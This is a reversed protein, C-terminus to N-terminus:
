AAEQQASLAEATSLILEVASCTRELLESCASLLDRSHKRCYGEIYTHAGGRDSEVTHGLCELLIAGGLEAVVENDLRQGGAHTITGQRDDAAHCLEHTWTSLNEVALGIEIGSRYYGLRGGPVIAKVVLGWHHAVELLPLTELFATASEM